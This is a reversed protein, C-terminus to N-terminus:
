NMNRFRHRFYPSLEYHLKNLKEWLPKILNINEPNGQIIEFEEM